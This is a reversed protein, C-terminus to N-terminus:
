WMPYGKKIWDEELGTQLNLLKHNTYGRAELYLFTKKINPCNHLKCCGCYIVIERDLPLNDVYDKFKEIGEQTSGVGMDKSGKIREMPGVNLIEPKRAKPDNLTQVLKAPDLLQSEDWPYDQQIFSFFAFGVIFVSFVAFLTNFKKMM